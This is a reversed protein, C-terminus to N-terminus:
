GRCSRRWASARRSARTSSSSEACATAAAAASHGTGHAALDRPRADARLVHRRGCRAVGRARARRHRARDDPRAHHDAASEGCRRAGRPVRADAQVPGGGAPVSRDRRRDRGGRAGVVAARAGPAAGRRREDQRPHEDRLPRGVAPRRAARVRARLLVHLPPRLGHVPQAVLRLGDGAGPQACLPLARRSVRGVYGHGITDFM